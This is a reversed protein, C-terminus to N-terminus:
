ADNQKRLVVITVPISGLQFSGSVMDIADSFEIDGRVFVPLGLRLNGARDTMERKVQGALINAIEGMADSIDADDLTEESPDMGLMSCVIEQCGGATSGVGLQISVNEAVLAVLATHTTPIATAPTNLWAIESEIGLAMAAVEKFADVAVDLWESASTGSSSTPTDQQRTRERYRPVAM